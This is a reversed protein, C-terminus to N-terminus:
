YDISEPGAMPQEANVSHRMRELACLDNNRRTMTKTWQTTKVICKERAEKTKWFSGSM